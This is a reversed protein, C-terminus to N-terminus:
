NSNPALLANADLLTQTALPPLNPSVATEAVVSEESLIEQGQENMVWQRSEINEGTAVDFVYHARAGILTIGTSNTEAALPPTYRTTIEITFRGNEEWATVAEPEDAVWSLITMMDQTATHYPMVAPLTLIQDDVGELPLVRVSKDGIIASREWLGGDTDYVHTIQRRITGDSGIEQWFESVWTDDLNRYGIIIVESSPFRHFYLTERRYLWGSQAPHTAEFQAALAELKTQIADFTITSPSVATETALDIPVATPLPPAPLPTPPIPTATPFVATPVEEAAETAVGQTVPPATADGCAALLLCLFAVRAVKIM